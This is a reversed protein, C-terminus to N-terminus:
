EKLSIEGSSIRNSYKNNAKATLKKVTDGIYGVRFESWCDGNLIRPDKKGGGKVNVNQLGPVSSSLFSDGSETIFSPVDPSSDLAFTVFSNPEPLEESTNTTTPTYLVVNSPGITHETPALPVPRVVLPSCPHRWLGMKSTFGSQKLVDLLNVHSPPSFLSPFISSLGTPPPPSSYIPTIIERM